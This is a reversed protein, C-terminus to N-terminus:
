GVSTHELSPTWLSVHSILEDKSRRNQDKLKSPKRYPLFTATYISNQITSSLM